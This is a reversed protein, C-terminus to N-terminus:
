VLKRGKNYDAKNQFVGFSRNGVEFEELGDKSVVKVIASQQFTRYRMAGPSVFLYSGAVFLFRAFQM